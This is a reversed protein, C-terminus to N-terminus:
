AAQGLSWEFLTTLNSFARARHSIQNKVEPDLEAMTQNQEKIWVIPDYGFGNEGRFDEIIEGKIVGQFSEVVETSRYFVAVCNFSAKWPKPFQALRSLLYLCRDHDSAQPDPSFRHSHIGPQFDLATVELGSDDALVPLNSAQHFAKAKILANEYYNAGVEPVDIEIGLENPMILKLPLHALIASIEEFKHANNSAILIERM